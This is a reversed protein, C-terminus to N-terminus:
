PHESGSGEDPEAGLEVPDYYARGGGAAIVDDLWNGEYVDNPGQMLDPAPADAATTVLSWAQRKYTWNAPFLRHAERWWPVAAEHGEERWLHQGLEFCAAARAEEPPRPRSRAIVEAPSLAFPSEAGHEVWQEIAARYALSPDPIARVEELMTRLRDPLGEPIESDRLPSREVTAQEAPRVITGTEDVWVAMPVNVFGLHEDTVHTTDFLSPHTQNAADAFPHAWTPDIDLAVTVV